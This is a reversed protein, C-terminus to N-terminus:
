NLGYFLNKEKGHCERPTILEAANTPSLNHAVCFGLRPIAGDTVNKKVHPSENFRRPHDGGIVTVDM